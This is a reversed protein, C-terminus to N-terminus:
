ESHTEIAEANSGKWWWLSAVLLFVSTMKKSLFVIENQVWLFFKIVKYMLVFYRKIVRALDDVFCNIIIFFIKNRFLILPCAYANLLSFMVPSVRSFVLTCYTDIKRTNLNRPKRTRTCKLPISNVGGLTWVFHSFASNYIFRKRIKFDQLLRVILTRTPFEVLWWRRKYM